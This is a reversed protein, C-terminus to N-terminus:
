AVPKNTKASNSLHFGEFGTKLSSHELFTSKNRHVGKGPFALLLKHHHAHKQPEQSRWQPQTIHHPAQADHAPQRALLQIERDARQRSEAARYLNGQGLFATGIRKVDAPTCANLVEPTYSVPLCLSPTWHHASICSRTLSASSNSNTSTSSGASRWHFNSKQLHLFLWCSLNM